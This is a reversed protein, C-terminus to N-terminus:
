NKFGYNNRQSIKLTLNRFLPLLKILFIEDEKYDRTDAQTVWVLSHTQPIWEEYYLM